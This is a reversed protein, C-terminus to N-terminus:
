HGRELEEICMWVLERLRGRERAPLRALMAQEVRQVAADCKALANQGKRTIRIQVIRGHRAHPERGVMGAAAMAQLIENMAQPTVFSRRALQANSLGGRAHLVSLATYQAVTLGFRRTVGGLRQRVARELRGIAYAVRAQAPTKRKSAKLGIMGM